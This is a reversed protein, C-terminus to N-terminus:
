FVFPASVALILLCYILCPLCNTIIIKGENGTAGTTSTVAIVNNICIMNGIAGGALQLAIIHVVPLGLIVATQFQLPSFLISSVTCSGSVFAGIIGIVPSIIPYIRGMSRALTFAIEQLMSPLGSVNVYSYRMISVMAVGFFLATAVNILQKVTARWVKGTKKVSLRFLFSAILSIIIFPFIGPNYLLALSFTANQVGFIDPVVIKISQLISKIGLGPIRTVLLVAAIIIYPCWAKLLSMQSRGGSESIKAPDETAGSSQYKEPFDWVHAPTLFKYKAAIITVGLGILSGIISPFDPGAFTGLLFYPVVFALGSFIAFPIIELASKLKRESSFMIVIMVTIMVPVFIGGLGLFLTTSHVLERTFNNVDFGAGTIDSMLTTVTTLSPTGVAAFPVPTSNSVLAVLCAAVPPFGLGVLLPAALAAPTGFGAAGEIFAGFLWAIILAQIRRDPSINRFGNNITEIAGAAQLTNLLLIAGFIILLVDWSSLFGQVAFALITIAQMKWIFFALPITVLFSLALSKAASVKFAVMLVLALFLPVSAILAYM